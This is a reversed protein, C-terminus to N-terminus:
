GAHLVLVEPMQFVLKECPRGGSEKRAIRATRSSLLTAM